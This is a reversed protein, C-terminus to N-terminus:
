YGVDMDPDPLTHEGGLVTRIAGLIVERAEKMSMEEEMLGMCEGAGIGPLVQTVQRGWVGQNHQEYEWAGRCALM